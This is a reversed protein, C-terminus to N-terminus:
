GKGWIVANVFRPRDSRKKMLVKLLLTERRKEEHLLLNMFTSKLKLKKIVRHCVCLEISEIIKLIGM